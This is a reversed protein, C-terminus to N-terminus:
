WGVDGLGGAWWTAAARVLGGHWRRKRAAAEYLSDLIDQGFSTFLKDFIELVNFIVYLKLLAQNRVSHYAQSMDIRLLMYSVAAIILLRLMDCSQAASLRRRRALSWLAGLVRLPLFTFLQLFCDLCTVYGFLLMPELCLPVALFNYVGARKDDANAEAEAEAEAAGSGLGLQAVLFGPFSSWGQQPLAGGEGDSDFGDDSGPASESSSAGAPSSTARLKFPAAEASSSFTTTPRQRLSSAVAPPPATPPSAPASPASEAPEPSAPAADVSEQQEVSVEASPCEM